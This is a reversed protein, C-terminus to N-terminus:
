LPQPPEGAGKWEMVVSWEGHAGPAPGKAVWGLAQFAEVRAHPVYQFWRIM